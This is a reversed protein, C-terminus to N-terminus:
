NTKCVKKKTIKHALLKQITDLKFLEIIMSGNCLILQDVQLMIQQKHNRALIETAIDTRYDHAQLAINTLGQHKWLQLGVDAIELLSYSYKIPKSSFGFNLYYHMVASYNTSLETLVKYYDRSYASHEHM